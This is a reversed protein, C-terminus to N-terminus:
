DAAAEAVQAALWMFLAAGPEGYDKTEQPLLVKLVM